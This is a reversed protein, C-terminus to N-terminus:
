TPKVLLGVILGSQTKLFYKTCNNRFTKPKPKSINARPSENDKIKLPYHSNIQVRSKIEIHMAILLFSYNDLFIIELNKQTYSLFATIHIHLKEIPM